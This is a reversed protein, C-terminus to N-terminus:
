ARYQLERILREAPYTPKLVAIDREAEEWMSKYHDAKAEADRLARLKLWGANYTDLWKNFWKEVEADRQEYMDELVEVAECAALAEERYMKRAFEHYVSHNQANEYLDELVVVAERLAKVEEADEFEVVYRGTADKQILKSALAQFQDELVEVAERLADYEEGPIIVENDYIHLMRSFGM